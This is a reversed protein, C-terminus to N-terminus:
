KRVASSGQASAPSHPGETHSCPPLPLSQLDRSPVWLRSWQFCHMSNLLLDKGQPPLQVFLAAPHPVLPGHEQTVYHTNGAPSGSNWAVAGAEMWDRGDPSATAAGVLSGSAWNM